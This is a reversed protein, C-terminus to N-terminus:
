KKVKPRRPPVLFLPEVPKNVERWVLPLSDRLKRLMKVRVQQTRLRQEEEEIYGSLIESFFNEIADKKAAM